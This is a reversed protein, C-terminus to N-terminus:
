RALESKKALAASEHGGAGPVASCIHRPVPEGATIAALLLSLRQRKCEAARIHLAFEIPKLRVVTGELRGLIELYVVVTQGLNPFATGMLLVGTTSIDVTECIWESRDFLMYRGALRLRHRQANRRDAEDFDRTPIM